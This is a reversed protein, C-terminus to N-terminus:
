ALALAWRLKKADCHFILKPTFSRRGNYDQWPSCAFAEDGLNFSIKYGGEGNNIVPGKCQSLRLAKIVSAVDHYFM